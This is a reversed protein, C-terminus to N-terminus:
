GLATALCYKLDQNQTITTEVMTTCPGEMTLEGMSHSYMPSEGGVVIRLCNCRVLDFRTYKSPKPPGHAQCSQLCRTCVRPQPYSRRERSGSSSISTTASCVPASRWRPGRCGPCNGRICRLACRPPRVIQHAVAFCPYKDTVVM